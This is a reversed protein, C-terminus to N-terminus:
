PPVQWPKDCSIGHRGLTRWSFSRFWFSHAAYSRCVYLFIQGRVKTGTWYHDLEKKAHHKIEQIKDRREQHHTMYFLLNMPLKVLFTIVTKTISWTSELLKLVLTKPDFSAFSFMSNSTLASKPEPIKVSTKYQSRSSGSPESSFQRRVVVSGSHHLFTQAGQYGLPAQLINGLSTRRTCPDEHRSRLFLGVAGDVDLSTRLGTASVTPQVLALWSSLERKWLFNHHIPIDQTRAEPQKDSCHSNLAGLVGELIRRVATSQSGHHVYSRTPVGVVGSWGNSRGLSRTAHYSELARQQDWRRLAPRSGAKRVIGFM